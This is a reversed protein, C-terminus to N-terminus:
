TFLINSHLNINWHNRSWQLLRLGDERQLGAKSKDKLRRIEQATQVFLLMAVGNWTLWNSESPQAIDQTHTYPESIKYPESAFVRHWKFHLDTLVTWSNSVSYRYRYVTICSLLKESTPLYSLKGNLTAKQNVSTFLVHGLPTVCAM